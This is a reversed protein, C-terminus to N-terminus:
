ATKDQGSSLDLLRMSSMLRKSDDPRLHRYHAVMKSDRHGLWELLQAETAGNRFSESCFYHRMSHVRGHEFGIEGAPTPYKSKLKEIVNDVLNRLVTSDQLKLGLPGHFILGDVTKSLRALVRTLEPHIPLCRTRKGKTHRASGLKIRRHSWREDTLRLVGAKLDVDSWRLSALENIRLGTCALGILVDALWGLDTSQCYLIMDTVQEFTYCYADCGDPKVLPLVIRHEPALRKTDILWNVVTKVENVELYITREAYDKKGLWLGYAETNAADVDNWFHIGHKSCFEIHKQQVTRYRKASGESVGGFMQPKQRDAMYLKWGEEIMLDATATSKSPVHKGREIAKTRDLKKLNELAEGHDRTSLSHKGLDVENYRVDAYYVGERKRLHWFYFECAIPPKKFPRAM